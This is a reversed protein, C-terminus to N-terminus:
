APNTTSLGLKLGTVDRFQAYWGMGEGLHTRGLLVTGGATAIRELTAEMDDVEVVLVAGDAIPGAEAYLGGIMQEGRSVMLYGEGGESFTWDFVAGYFRTAADLDTAPIEWWTVTNNTAESM